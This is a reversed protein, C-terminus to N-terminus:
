RDSAHQCDCLDDESEEKMSTSIMWVFPIIMTFGGIALVVYAIAKRITEQVARRRHSLVLERSSAEDGRPSRLTSPRRAEAM